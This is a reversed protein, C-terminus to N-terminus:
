ISYKRDVWCLVVMSQVRGSERGNKVKLFTFFPFEVYNM